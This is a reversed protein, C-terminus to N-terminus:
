FFIINSIYGWVNHHNVLHKNKACIIYHKVTYFFFINTIYDWALKTVIGYNKHLGKDNIHSIFDRFVGKIDCMNGYDHVM